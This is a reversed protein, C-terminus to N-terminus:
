GPLENKIKRKYIIMVIAFIICLSVLIIVVLLLVNIGSETSYDDVYDDLNGYNLFYQCEKTTQKLSSCMLELVDDGKLSGKYTVNNIVVAPWTIIYSADILKM